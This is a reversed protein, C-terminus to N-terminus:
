AISANVFEGGLGTDMFGPVTWQADLSCPAALRRARRNIKGTPVTTTLPSSSKSPISFGAGSRATLWTSLPNGKTAPVPNSVIDVPKQALESAPAIIIEQSPLIGCAALPSSHASVPM